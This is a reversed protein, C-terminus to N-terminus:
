KLIMNVIVCNNYKKGNKESGAFFFEITVLDGVRFNALIEINNNRVECYITQDDTTVVDVMVKSFDQKKNRRFLKVESMYVIQVVKNITEKHM